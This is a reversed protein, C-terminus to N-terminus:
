MNNKLYGYYARSISLLYVDSLHDFSAGQRMTLQCKKIKALILRSYCITNKEFPSSNLTSAPFQNNCPKQECFVVGFSLSKVATIM